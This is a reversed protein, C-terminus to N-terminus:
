LKNPREDIPRRILRVSRQNTLYWFFWELMVFLRNRFNVLYLVHIFCWALWAVLGKFHWRGVVAVAKARGITAMTGKDWYKFPKRKAAPIDDRILKAVYRGQQIAVPAIGPLPRGDKGQCHAADGIVFIQQHGPITLDPGVIIRGQRDQPVGITRLIPGAENGAAWTVTSTPILRNGIFVGEANINTVPSNLLVKVGMGELDRKARQSLDEPYTLLLRNAGEILYIEANEPRIKRFNRLMTKRAIEAISGALEVGTPGGGVIVFRMYKAAAARSDCREAHEFALLVRERIEIAEAYTKLGPAFTEWEPHGFYSHRAGVAVVLWDFPFQEGNAAEVVQLSADIKAIDAMLVTTNNQKRLIERIPVAVDAPSLAASAVQYLLPQFLHHNTRDLVQLIVKARGLKKAAALGGFGGGIIIVRPYGM